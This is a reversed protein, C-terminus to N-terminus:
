KASKQHHPHPVQNPNVAQRHRTKAQPLTVKIKSIQKNQITIGQNRKNYPIYKKVFQKMQKNENQMQSLQTLLTNWVTASLQGEFMITQVVTPPQTTTIIQSSVTGDLSSTQM